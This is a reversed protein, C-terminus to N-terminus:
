HKIDLFFFSLSSFFLLVLVNEVGGGRRKKKKKKDGLSDDILTVLIASTIAYCESLSEETESRDTRIADIVKM